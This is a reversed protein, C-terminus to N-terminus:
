NVVVKHRFKLFSPPAHDSGLAARQGPHDRSSSVRQDMVPAVVAVATKSTWPIHHPTSAKLLRTFMGLQFFMLRKRQFM